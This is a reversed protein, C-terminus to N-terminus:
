ISFTQKMVANLFVELLLGLESLKFHFGQERIPDCKISRGHVIEHLCLCSNSSEKHFHRRYLCLSQYEPGKKHNYFCYANHSCRSYPASFAPHKWMFTHHHNRLHRLHPFFLSMKRNHLYICHLANIQNSKM